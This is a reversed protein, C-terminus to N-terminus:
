GETTKSWLPPSDGDQSSSSKLGAHLSKWALPTAMELKVHERPLSDGSPNM